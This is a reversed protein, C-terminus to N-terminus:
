IKIRASGTHDRFRFDDCEFHQPINEVDHQLVFREPRLEVLGIAAASQFVMQAAHGHERIKRRCKDLMKLLAHLELAKSRSLYYNLMSHGCITEIENANTAHVDRFSIM